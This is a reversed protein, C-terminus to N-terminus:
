MDIPLLPLPHCRCGLFERYILGKREERQVILRNVCVTRREIDYCELNAPTLSSEHLYQALTRRVEETIDVMYKKKERQTEEEQISSRNPNKGATTISASASAMTM